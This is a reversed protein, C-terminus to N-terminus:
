KGICFNSFITDLIEEIGVVGMIEGIFNASMRVYEGQIDLPQQSDICDLANLAMSLLRRHRQSTILPDESPTYFAKAISIIADVVRSESIKINEPLFSTSISITSGEVIVDSSYLVDRDDQKNFVIILPKSYFVVSKYIDSDELDSIVRCKMGDVVLICIDAEEIRKQARRMGELEILDQSGDRIGATDSLVVQFGGIDLQVDLVDRTTGAIDSVIAVERQALANILSSKGVNPEGVIAVRIGRMIVESVDKQKLHDTIQSKLFAVRQYIIEITDTPVEDAPFDVLAEVLAMTEILCSRWATYLSSQQGFFQRTAVQRQVETKADLLLALGEARTLDMKGNLFARKSFEGPYAVRLYELGAFEGLIKQIIAISGHTHFELIDEGTFSHPGKFYVVICGDIIEDRRVLSYLQCYVAERHQLKSDINYERALQLCEKGSVRIVAVGSKGFATSLAYITDAGM